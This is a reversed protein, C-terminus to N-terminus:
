RRNPYRWRFGIRRLLIGNVTITTFFGLSSLAHHPLQRVLSLFYDGSHIPILALGLDILVYWVALAAIIRGNPLKDTLVTFLVPVGLLVFSIIFRAFVLVMVWSHIGDNELVLNVGMWVACLMTLELLDPLHFQRRPTEAHTTFRWGLLLRAAWLVILMAITLLAFFIGVFPVGRALLSLAIHVGWMSYGLIITYIGVGILGALARRPALAALTGLVTAQGYFIGNFICFVCLLGTAAHTGERWWALADMVMAAALNLLAIALLSASMAANDYSQRPLRRGFM